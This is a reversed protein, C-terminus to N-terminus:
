NKNITSAMSEFSENIATNMERLFTAVKPQPLLKNRFQVNKLYLSGVNEDFLVHNNNKDKHIIRNEEVALNNM